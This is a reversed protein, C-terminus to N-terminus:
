LLFGYETPVSFLGREGVFPCELSGCPSFVTGFGFLSVWIDGLKNVWSSSRDVGARIRTASWGVFSCELSGYPSFLGLGLVLDGFIGWITQGPLLGLGGGLRPGARSGRLVGFSLRGGDRFTLVWGIFEFRYLM